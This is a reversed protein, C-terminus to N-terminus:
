GKVSGKFTISAISNEPTWRIESLKQIVIDLIDRGEENMKVYAATLSLCQEQNFFNNENINRKGM